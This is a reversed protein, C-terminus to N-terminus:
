DLTIKYGSHDESDNASEEESDESSDSETNCESDSETDCESDDESDDDTELSSELEHLEDALQEIRDSFRNKAAELSAIRRTLSSLNVRGGELEDVRGDLDELHGEVEVLQASISAIQKGAKEARWGERQARQAGELAAIRESLLECISAVQEDHKNAHQSNSSGSAAVQEELAIMRQSLQEIAAAFMYTGALTQIGTVVRKVPEYASMDLGEENLMHEVAAYEPSNPDLQDLREPLRRTCSLQTQAGASSQARESREKLALGSQQAQQIAALLADAKAASMSYRVEETNENSNQGGATARTKASFRVNAFGLPATQFLASPCRSAKNLLRPVREKVCRPKSTVGCVARVSPKPQYPCGHEGVFSTAPKHAGAM